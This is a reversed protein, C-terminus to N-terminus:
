EPVRIATARFIRSRGISNMKWREEYETTSEDLKIIRENQEGKDELRGGQGMDAHM